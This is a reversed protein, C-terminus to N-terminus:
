LINSYGLSRDGEPNKSPRYYDKLQNAIMQVALATFGNELPITLTKERGARIEFHMYGQRLLLFRFLVLKQINPVTLLHEQLNEDLLLKVEDVEDCFLPTKTLEPYKELPNKSFFIERATQAIKRDSIQLHLNGTKLGLQRADELTIVSPMSATEPLMPRLTCQKM